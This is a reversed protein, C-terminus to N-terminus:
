VPEFEACGFTEPRRLGLHLPAQVGVREVIVVEQDDGANKRRGSPRM